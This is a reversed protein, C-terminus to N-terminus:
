HYDEAANFPAFAVDVPLSDTTYVKDDVKLVMPPIQWHGSDFSTIKLVQQIQKGDISETTDAKGKDLFEFHPISDLLFWTVSQGLPVHVDLTLVIPEGILIKDRDVSAKALVQAQLLAPRVLLLSYGIIHRIIRKM